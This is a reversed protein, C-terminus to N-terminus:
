AYNQCYESFSREAFESTKVHFKWVNKIVNIFDHEIYFFSKIEMIAGFNKNKSIEDVSNWRWM